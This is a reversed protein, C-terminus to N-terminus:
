RPGRSARAGQRETARYAGLILIRGSLSARALHRLLLQADPPRGVSRRRASILVPMSAPWEGLLGRGRGRVAPLASRRPTAPMLRPCTPCDGACSPCCHPGARRRARPRHHPLELTPAERVYHGLAEVFPQFPVLTQGGGGGRGAGGGKRRRGSGAHWRRSRPRRDRGAATDQGRGSRGAAAAGAGACRWRILGRARSRGLWRELQALEGLAASWSAGQGRARLAAPPEIPQVRGRARDLEVTVLLGGGGPNLLRQHIATLAEPSPSTGLEDRLLGRLRDFVRLGEAVNGQLELAQMLLMYGSERYPEGSEILTRPPASRRGRASPAAWAEARAGASRGRAVTAASRRAGTAANRDLTGSLGPLLGRSAINLPSRPWPGPAAPSAAIYREAPSQGIKRPQGGRCRGLHPSPLELM